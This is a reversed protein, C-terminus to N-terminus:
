LYIWSIISRDEYYRLYKGDRVQYIGDQYTVGTCNNKICYEKAGELTNEHPLNNTDYNVPYDEIYYSIFKDSFKTKSQLKKLNLYLLTDHNNYIVDYLHSYLEIINNIDKSNSLVNSEFLINHPLIETNYDKNIIDDYFSKLIIADQGETDIKLYYIYKINLEDIITALTKISIEYENIIDTININKKECLELVTKHYSNITNCGRVWDPLKHEIIFHEPVYYVKGKGNYNSCAIDLKICNDKEPLRNLYYKVPEISIGSRKDNKQIETDFDSTGIEIFDCFM